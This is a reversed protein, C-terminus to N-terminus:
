DPNPHLRVNDDLDHRRNPKGRISVSFGQRLGRQVFFVALFQSFIVGSNGRAGTILLRGLTKALDSLSMESNTKLRETAASLTQSMNSGTDADVVPFVNIRDLLPAERLLDAAGALFAKVLIEERTVKRSRKKDGIKPERGRVLRAINTRHTFLAMGAAVIATLLANRQGELIWISVPYSAIMALSGLSVRKFAATVALFVCGGLFMALPSIVLFAGVAAAVGKGGKFGHFIPFMNGLLLPLAMTPALEPPGLLRAALIASSAKGMEIVLVPLAIRWGALRLLNTAGPNKSGSLSPDQFGGLRSALISTNVSGVLYAAIAIGFVLLGPELNPMGPLIACFAAEHFAIVNLTFNRRNLLRKNSYGEILDLGTEPGLCSRVGPFLFRHCSTRPLPM